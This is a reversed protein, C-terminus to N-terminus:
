FFLKKCNDWRGHDNSGLDVKNLLNEQLEKLNESNPFRGAIGSIVIEDKVDVNM